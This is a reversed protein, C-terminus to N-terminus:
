LAPKQVMLWLIALLAAFAPWGLGFWWAMTRRYAPPLATGEAAARRALDRARKQLWLVPLWCGGIFLFLALALGTWGRTLPLGLDGAMALGTAFVGVVGPATFIADAIVAHRAVAAIVAPDRTRHAAWMFYAIGLGTGGVLMASLIHITKLWLHDM